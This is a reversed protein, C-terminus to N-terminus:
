REALARMLELEVREKERVLEEYQRSIQQCESKIAEKEKRVGVM